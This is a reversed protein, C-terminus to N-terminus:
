LASILFLLLLLVAAGMAAALRPNELPKRYLPMDAYEEAFAEHNAEDFFHKTAFFFEGTVSCGTCVPEGVLREERVHTTCNLSGCNVCYTIPDDADRCHVCTGFADEVTVRTGGNTAFAHGYEYEGLRTTTTALPLYVPDVDLIRVDSKSPTCTREYTVNNDGTYTVTREYRERQRDVIWDTYESETRGFRLIEVADYRADVDGDDNDRGPDAGRDTADGGDTAGGGDAAGDGGRGPLPRRDDRASEILSALDSRLLSPGDRDASAALREREHVAHIVGVSTEFTADIETEVSLTPLFSLEATPKPLDDVDLNSVASAAADRAAVVDDVDRPPPLTEDCLVEIRGSYLDMGIAEGIERLERGDLLDIDVDDPAASVREAYEEAPGTFRGTTAVMGRVPGDYEYTQVASHLKQVVPRGVVSTHKCEVVVGVPDGPGRHDVMTVDRGEDATRVAQTVDRYGQHRFVDVMLEEFEFGSLDDLLTTVDPTGTPMSLVTGGATEGIM